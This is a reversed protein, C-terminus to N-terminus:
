NRKKLPLQRGAEGLSAVNFDLVVNQGEQRVSYPVPQNLDITVYVWPAGSVTKQEAIVQKLNILADDSFPRRLIEPVQLNELKLLVANGPEEEVKFSSIKTAIVTIREKGKVRALTINELNGIDSIPKVPM